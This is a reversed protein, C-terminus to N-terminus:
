GETPESEPNPTPALLPSRLIRVGGYTLLAIAVVSISVNVVTAILGLRFLEPALDDGQSTFRNFGWLDVARDLKWWGWNIVLGLASPVLGRAWVPQALRWGFILGLVVVLSALVTPWWVLELALNIGDAGIADVIPQIILFNFILGLSLGGAAVLAATATVRQVIALRRRGTEDV